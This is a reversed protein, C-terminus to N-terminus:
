EVAGPWLPKEGDVLAGAAVIRPGLTKGAKVGDRLQLTAEPFFSHMDRVGTVGNAIFLPLYAPGAFHVPMDGLGPILLSGTGDIGRAGDPVAADGSKGIAGIRDGEIIVTMDRQARGAAPDIVAVHTIAIAKPQALLMGPWAVLTLFALKNMVGERSQ